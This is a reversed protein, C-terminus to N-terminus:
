LASLQGICVVLFFHVFLYIDSGYYKKEKSIEVFRNKTKNNNKNNNNLVMNPTYM